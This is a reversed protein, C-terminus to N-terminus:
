KIPPTKTKKYIPEYLNYGFVYVPVIITECFIIGCVVSGFSAEYQISDVKHIDENLLGYPRYEQGDIVKNDACSSLLACIVLLILLAKHRM